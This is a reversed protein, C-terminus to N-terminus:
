LVAKSMLSSLASRGVQLHCIVVVYVPLTEFNFIFQYSLLYM